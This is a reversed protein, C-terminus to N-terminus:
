VKLWWTSDGLRRLYRVRGASVSRIVATVCKGRTFEVTKTADVLKSLSTKSGGAPAADWRGHIVAAGSHAVAAEGMAILECLPVPSASRACWWDRALLAPRYRELHAAVNDRQLSSSFQLYCGPLLLELNSSSPRLHGSLPGDTPSCATAIQPPV